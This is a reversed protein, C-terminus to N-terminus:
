KNNYHKKKPNWLEDAESPKKSRTMAVLCPLLSFKAIFITVCASQGIPGLIRSTM